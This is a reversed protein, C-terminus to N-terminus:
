NNGHVERGKGNKSNGKKTHSLKKETGCGSMWCSKAKGDKAEKRAAPKGRRNTNKRVGGEFRTM